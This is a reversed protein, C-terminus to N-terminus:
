WKFLFSRFISIQSKMIYGVTDAYHIIEAPIGSFGRWQKELSDVPHRQLLEFNTTFKGASIVDIM